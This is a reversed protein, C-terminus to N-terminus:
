SAPCWSPTTWTSDGIFKRQKPDSQFAPHTCYVDHGSDGQVHYSESKCAQCNLCSRRETVEPGYM